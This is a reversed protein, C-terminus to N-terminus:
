CHLIMDSPNISEINFMLLHKFLQGFFVGTELSCIKTIAAPLYQLM